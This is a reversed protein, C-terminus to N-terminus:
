PQRRPDAESGGVWRTKRQPGSVQDPDERLRNNESDGRAAGGKRLLHV